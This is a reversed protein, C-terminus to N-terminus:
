SGSPEVYRTGASESKSGVELSAFSRRQLQVREDDPINMSEALVAALGAVDTNDIDSDFLWQITDEPTILDIASRGSGDRTAPARVYRVRDISIDQAIEGQGLFANTKATIIRRDTVVVLNRAAAKDMAPAVKGKAGDLIAGMRAPADLGLVRLTEGDEIFWRLIRLYRELDLSKPACVVAPARLPPTPPHLADALPQIAELLQASTLRAKKAEKRKGILPMTSRGPLEAIIRLERTLSGVLSTAEALASNLEEGTEREIIEVLRAEDAEECGAARARAAHLTQYGTWAQLSSLLAYADFIIARANTELYQRRGPADLQGLQRVHEGVNLRYTERQKRLDDDKAAVKEWETTTVSGLERARGVARDVTDVLATLDAWQGHRMTTLVESTLAINTRVLGAVQSLMMQLAVMALAPGIAVAVEAASVATVPIWRAQHVIRGNAIVAGLNAGDKAALAGGASLYARTADSLQYIGEMGAFANALNGGVTATNGISALATSIRTRDDVSVLGLDIPHLKLEAILEAPIEGFAVAIGPRVEVLVTSAAASNSGSPPAPCDAARSGATDSRGEVEPGAAVISDSPDQM